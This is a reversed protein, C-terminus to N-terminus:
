YVVAGPQVKRSHSLIKLAALWFAYASKKQGKGCTGEYVTDAIAAPAGGSLRLPHPSFGSYVPAFIERHASQRRVRYFQAAMATEM